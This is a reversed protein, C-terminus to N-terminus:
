IKSEDTGLLENSYRFIYFFVLDKKDDDKAKGLSGIELLIEAKNKCHYADMSAQVKDYSNLIVSILLNMLILNVFLTFCIYIIWDNSTLLNSTRVEGLMTKYYIGLNKIFNM